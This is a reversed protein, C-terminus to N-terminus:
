LNSGLKMGFASVLEEFLQKSNVRFTNPYRVDGKDVKLGFRELQLKVSIDQVFYVRYESGWKGEGCDFVHGDKELQKWTFRSGAWSNYNKVLDSTKSSAVEAELIIPRPSRSVLFIAALDPRPITRPKRGM